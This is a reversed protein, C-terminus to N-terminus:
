CSTWVRFGNCLRGTPLIRFSAQKLSTVFSVYALVEELHGEACAMSCAMHAESWEAEFDGDKDAKSQAAEEAYM